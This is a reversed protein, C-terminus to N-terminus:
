RWAATLACSQSSQPDSMCSGIRVTAISLVTTQRVCAPAPPLLFAVRSVEQNTAEKHSQYCQRALHAHLVEYHTIQTRVVRTCSDTCFLDVLRRTRTNGPSRPVPETSQATDEGSAWAAAAEAEGGTGGGEAPPDAVSAGSEVQREWPCAVAGGAGAMAGPFSATGEAAAEEAVAAQAAEVAWSARM